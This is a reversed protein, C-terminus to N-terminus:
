FAPLLWIKRSWLDNYLGAFSHIIRQSFLVLAWRKILFLCKARKIKVLTLHKTQCQIWFMLKSHDWQQRLCFFTNAFIFKNGDTAYLICIDTASHFSINLRFVKKNQTVFINRKAIFRRKYLQAQIKWKVSGVSNKRLKENIGM